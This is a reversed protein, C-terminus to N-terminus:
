TKPTIFLAVIFMWTCTKTHINTKLEKPYIGLLIIALNYPLLINLKTLFHWVTKWIDKWIDKLFSYPLLEQELM